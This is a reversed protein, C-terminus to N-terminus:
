ASVPQSRYHRGIQQGRLRAEGLGTLARGSSTLLIYQRDLLFRELNLLESSHVRLVNSLVREGAVGDLADLKKMYELHRQTLGDRERGTLVLAGEVTPTGQFSLARWARVLDRASRPIGGAAVGLANADETSMEVGLDFAMGAVIQGLEEDSYADYDLKLPFRSAVAPVIRHPETTAAVVCLWPISVKGGYSTNVFGEEMLTLLLEQTAPKARHIEDVFLVGGDFRRVFSVFQRDNMRSLDISVVPDGLEVGIVQALTTKGCGPMSTLLVHALPRQTEIAECVYPMLKAKLGEQGIFDTLTTPRLSENIDTM